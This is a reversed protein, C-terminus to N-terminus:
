LVIHGELFRTLANAIARAPIEPNNVLMRAESPNTLFGTELIASVTMPHVAHEYRRWNFAYYGTMSRSINPDESLGTGKGYEDRIISVLEGAKNTMDRRPAAVKFGSTYSSDSGDAHIAIFVDAWYMPPITAPLIDVVIEESELIKKTEEAIKLNVEWEATRGNSTGSSVRLKSLEDPLENSKWHGVQVAVKYPGDPRKWDSFDPYKYGDLPEQDDETYPPAGYDPLKKLNTM